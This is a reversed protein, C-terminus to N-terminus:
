ARIANGDADFFHTRAADLALGVVDGVTLDADGSIRVTIQGVQGCDLLVSTDAGLYEIVDVTGDCQGTGK